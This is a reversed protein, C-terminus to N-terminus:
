KNSLLIIFYLQWYIREERRNTLAHCVPCLTVLNDMSHNDKSYDIHHIPFQMGTRKVYEEQNKFCIQCEKNDRKRVKNKYRKTFGSAYPKTSNGDVYCPCLKGKRGFMGNKEGRLDPRPIGRRAKSLKERTEKYLHKGKFFAWKGKNAKSIKNRTEEPMPVNKNWSTQGKKFRGSNPHAKQFESMKKKTEETHPINLRHKNGKMREACQKRYDESRPYIGTPM